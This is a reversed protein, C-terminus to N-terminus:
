KKHKQSAKRHKNKPCSTVAIRTAKHIEAGNQAVIQTPMTLGAKCLNGNAALASNPGQPLTLEFSTFPVDPTSKFTSSTIGKKSIFTTGELDVAVNDGQLVIILTPFAEGGHSVFYAPGTLPVALVPTDVTAYGVVSAPPCTAPNAAFVAALCAKQLTTLRAPLQKPLEVKVGAINAQSNAQNASPPTTPYLVKVNISAGRKRSTKGSTSVKFDPRFKLERCSGVQFHSELPATAHEISTATGTFSMPACSTPNFMFNSRDIVANITRLDTPVGKVITPLPDTTVTAQATHPDVAISGRVVETGLDFPGAVIPVAISMGFPAGKYPGTLYIKAPPENPQPVVLPYPGPGSAVVTHGIESSAECTGQSAQPEPCLPVSGIMALLGEPLRFQLKEIRQQGDPRQMLLSLNTYGGAKDTTSGAIMSPSFPLPSVCPSGGLGSDIVFSSTPFADAVFPTSSPTFDSSAAYTGCMTPTVLAAQTGGNFSLKADTFPFQPIGKYDPPNGELIATLRGTTPDLSVHIVQKINVGDGSIALLLQLNPPNSQLVYVNGEVKDRLLPTAVQATGVKSAAPCSPPGELDIRAEGAQCAALGAAQGPNIVVGEPLTVRIDKVDSAALQGPVTLGEQPVKVDVTLGAPTDAKSTDLAVSMSPSFSLHECGTFGVLAGSNDHSQFTGSAIAKPENWSDAQASFTLPGECATPLTLFPKLGEGSVSCPKPCGAGERKADHSSEGPVGWVVLRISTVNRQPINNANVTLGYDGGSRVSVDLLTSIGEFSFGFQAPIGPPPTVNYVPFVLTKHEDEVTGLTTFIVGVQSAAPCGGGSDLLQRACQTVVSPDGIFGPPLNVEIDRAQGGVPEGANQTSSTIFEITGSVEYPHSGAQTDVIGNVNFSSADFGTFGFGSLTPYSSFGWAPACLGGSM